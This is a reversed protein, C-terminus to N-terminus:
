AIFHFSAYMTVTSSHKSFKIHSFEDKIVVFSLISRALKEICKDNWRLIILMDLIKGLEFLVGGVAGSGLM